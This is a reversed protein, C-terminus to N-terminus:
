SEQRRRNEVTVVIITLFENDTIEVEAGKARASNRFLTLHERLDRGYPKFFPGMQLKSYRGGVANMMSRLETVVAAGTRPVERDQAIPDSM